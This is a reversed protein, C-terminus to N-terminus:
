ERDLLHKGPLHISLDDGPTASEANYEKCTLATRPIYSEDITLINLFEFDRSAVSALDSGYIICLDHTSIVKRPKPTPISHPM